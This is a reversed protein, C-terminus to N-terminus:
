LLMFKDLIISIFADMNFNIYNPIFNDNECFQNAKAINFLLEMFITLLIEFLFTFRNENDSCVSYADFGKQAEDINGYLLHWASKEPTYLEDENNEETM